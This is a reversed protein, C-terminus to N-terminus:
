RFTFTVEVRRNLPERVDDATPRALDTEGRGTAGILAADMGRYVLYYSVAAAMRGSLARSYAASHATDTHGILTVNRVACGSARRLASDLNDRASQSLDDRDWDFYVAITFNRCSVASNQPPPPIGKADTKPAINPEAPAATRISQIQVRVNSQQPHDPWDLAWLELGSLGERRARVLAEDGLRNLLLRAERATSRNPYLLLHAKLAAADQRNVRAWALAEADVAPPASTAAGDDAEPAPSVTATNAGELSQEAAPQENVDRPMLQATVFAIAVISAMVLVPRLWGPTPPGQPPDAWTDDDRAAFAPKATEPTAVAPKAAAAIAAQRQAEARARAAAADEEAIQAWVDDALPDSPYAQAFQRLGELDGRAQARSFAALGPRGVKKGLVALVDLWAPDDQAGLGDARAWGILTEVHDTNFPPDLDTPELLVPVYVGRGRGIAAEGLVWGNKDGGHPFCDNTWCVLVARATRVEQSIEASFSVGPELRADFWVSLKLARLAAAIQEVQPRMRRKYSIFVDSVSPDSM